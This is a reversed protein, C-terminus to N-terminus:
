VDYQVDHLELVQGGLEVSRDYRTAFATGVRDVVARTVLIQDRAALDEGMKAAVNVMDGYVNDRLRM